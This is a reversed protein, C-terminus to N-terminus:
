RNETLRLYDFSTIRFNEKDFILTDKMDQDVFLPQEDLILNYVILAAKTQDRFNLDILNLNLIEGQENLFYLKNREEDLYNIQLYAQDTRWNHIIKNSLLSNRFNKSAYLNIGAEPMEEVFYNSKRVNGFYLESGDTTEFQFKELDVKQNKEPHCSVIVAMFFLITIKKVQNFCVL